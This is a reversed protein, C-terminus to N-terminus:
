HCGQLCRRNKHMLVSTAAVNRCFVNPNEGFSVKFSFIVKSFINPSFEIFHEQQLMFMFFSISNTQRQRLRPLFCPNHSGSLINSLKHMFINKQLGRRISRGAKPRSDAASRPVALFIFYINPAMAGQM